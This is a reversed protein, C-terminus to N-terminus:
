EVNAKLWATMLELVIPSITQDLQGYEAVTCIKCEQFLHNLGPLEKVEYKKSKGVKLATEIAPLNSKSIVQIDKDGNLALIKAKIKKLNPAPDYALFYRFWPSGVQGVFQNIFKEKSDEDKIGTTAAVITNSTKDVWANVVARTSTIAAANDGSAIIAQLVNKYLDVYADTYDKPMGAKTFAAENQESMLKMTKEGPGALMIIFNIDTREAAVIQAIMGGESHGILGVKKKSVEQRAMLYNLSVIADNAFDRTTSSFVDGTTKGMGRDDVRLVIFGNRTLHDAIVAFPKHGMIEEDRNQQGSGTLLLVAPFPGKGQPITITAGYHISREKNAYEVDESRYPFPAVPTQARVKETIKNVKKLNLPISMGQSFTGNIIDGRLKGSYKAQFQNIEVYVSDDFLKLLSVKIGKLGNEPSDLTASFNNSADQTVQFVLTMEAGVNIKGEWIGLFRNQGSSYITTLVFALLLMNKKM